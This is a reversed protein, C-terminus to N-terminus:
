RPFEEVQGDSSTKKVIGTGFARLFKVLRDQIEEDLPEDYLFVIAHRQIYGKVTNSGSLPLNFSYHPGNRAANRKLTQLVHEPREGTSDGLLKEARQAQSSLKDELCVVIEPFNRRLQQLVEGPDLGDSGPKRDVRLELVTM